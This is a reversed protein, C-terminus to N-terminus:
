SLRSKLGENFREFADGLKEAEEAVQVRAYVLTVGPELSRSMDELALHRELKELEHLAHRGPGLESFRLTVTIDDM